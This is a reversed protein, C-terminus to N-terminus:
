HSSSLGFYITSESSADISVNLKDAFLMKSFGGSVVTSEASIDDKSKHTIQLAFNKFPTVGITATGGIANVIEGNSKKRRRLKLDSTISYRSFKKKLTFKAEAQANSDEVNWYGM